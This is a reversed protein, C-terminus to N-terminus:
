KKLSISQSSLVINHIEFNHEPTETLQYKMSSTEYSILLIDEDNQTLFWFKEVLKWPRPVTWWNVM